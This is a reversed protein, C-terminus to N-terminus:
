KDKIFEEICKLTENGITHEIKETERFILKPDLKLYKLFETIINHRKLLLIGKKHGSKTLTIIGNDYILYNLAALKHLMESTAAPSVNLAHALESLRTYKKTKSLRYIMELYDEMSATLQKHMDERFTRFKNM